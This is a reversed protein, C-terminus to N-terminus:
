PQPEKAAPFCCICRGSVWTGGYQPCANRCATAGCAMTETEAERPAAMAQTAGFGLAGAVAIGFAMRQWSATIMRM